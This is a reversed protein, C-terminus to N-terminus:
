GWRTMLGLLIRPKFPSTGAAGSLPLLCCLLIQLVKCTTLVWGKWRFGNIMSCGSSPAPKLFTHVASRWWARHTPPHTDRQTQNGSCFDGIWLFIKSLAKGQLYLYFFRLAIHSSVLLIKCVCSHLLSAPIVWFESAASARSIADSFVSNTSSTPPHSISTLAIQKSGRWNNNGVLTVVSWAQPLSDWM